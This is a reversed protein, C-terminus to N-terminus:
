QNKLYFAALDLDAMETIKINKASGIILRPSLGRNEIASSEDTVILGESIASNLAQYLTKIPFCQPTLARWLNERSITKLGSNLQQKITDVLPTSLLGGASYGKTQVMLQDIDSFTLCPRAADHVLVWDDPDAISRLKELGNLVSFVRESGGLVTTVRPDSAQKMSSWYADSKSIAVIVQHIKPHNLLADLSHEIVKQGLLPLYQKPTKSNMRKGVGAAPMIAWYKITTNSM